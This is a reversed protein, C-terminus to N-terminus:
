GEKAPSAAAAAPLQRALQAEIHAALGFAGSKAAMDAFHEDQMTNFTDFAQGGFLTEGFDAKRATALMQRVFIAEFQKAAASLRERDTAAPQPGTGLTFVSAPPLNM